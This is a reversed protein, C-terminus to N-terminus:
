TGNGVAKKRVSDPTWLGIQVREELNEETFLCNIDKRIRELYKADNEINEFRNIIEEVPGIEVDM